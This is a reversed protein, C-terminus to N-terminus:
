FKYKIYLYYLIPFRVKLRLKFPIEFCTSIKKRLSKTKIIKKINRIDQVNIIGKHINLCSLYRIYLELSFIKAVLRDSMDFIKRSAKLHDLNHEDSIFATLSKEHRVHIYLVKRLVYLKQANLVCKIMYETDEAYRIDTSFNINNNVILDRRIVYNWMQFYLCRVDSLKNLDIYGNIQPIIVKKTQDFFEDEYGFMLIDTEHVELLNNISSLANTKLKDDADMFLIWKGTAYGIGINRSDSAGTNQKNIVTFNSYCSYDNCIDKSSDTSGDNILIVEFNNYDQALLSKICSHLYDQVNYVPIIISFTCM